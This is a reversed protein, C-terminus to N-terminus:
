GKPYEDRRRFWLGTENRGSRRAISGSTCAGSRTWARAPVGLLHPLGRRGRPRVREHRPGRAHVDGLGRGVDGRVGNVPPPAADTARASPAADMPRYNYEDDGTRQQEETLAVHFDLNFDSGHLVGVPLELGDAAQLGAAQGAPGALDRCRSTTSPSTSSRATSGTRSRRAPRAARRTTPASCSTTSWSSRAAASSTPWRPPARRPRSGTHSTWGSGRCRRRHRAVEDSRHTLEKEEKLLALRAALWEDRTGTRHTTTHTTTTM